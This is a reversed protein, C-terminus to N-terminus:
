ASQLTREKIEAGLAYFDGCIDQYGRKVYFANNVTTEGEAMLGAIILGAGGRLDLANVSAGHLESVGRIVAKEGELSIDAGMKNLEAAIKFRDEFVHEYIESIGDAMSLCAMIQSQMDTPFGPFPRTHIHEVSFIMQAGVVRIRKNQVVIGCGMHALVQLVSKVEREWVNFVQINGCTAAAAALYTSAVIRDASITFEVDHLKETGYITINATGMGHIDAGMKNLMLCLDIIEPERAAHRIVTKGKATVAALIVNETAGVSPYRLDVATGLIQHSYGYIGDESESLAVNMQRLTELHIDIPRKGITCGGPYPIFVEGFRGLMAGMMFVSSRMQGACDGSVFHGSAASTDIQVYNDGYEVACGLSQLIRIMGDVDSIRPCGYLRTVGRNLLSAALMPLAANKSGQIFIDGKLSKGGNVMISTM